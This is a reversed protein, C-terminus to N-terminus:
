LVRVFCDRYRTKLSTLRGAANAKSPFPGIYVSTKGNRIVLFASEGRAQLKSLEQKALHPRSYTAVQIAYRLRQALKRPPTAGPTTSPSRKPEVVPPESAAERTKSASPPEASKSSSSSASAAPLSSETKVLTPSRLLRETRALQKGREVGAAFVVTVGILASIGLVILQDQRLRIVVGGWGYRRPTAASSQSLDFLELQGAPPM